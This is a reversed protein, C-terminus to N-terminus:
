PVVTVTTDTGGGGPSPDPTLLFTMLALPIVVALVVGLAVMVRHGRSLKTIDGVGPLVLAPAESAGGLFPSGCDRCTSATLANRLGCRTCPWEAEQVVPVAPLAAPQAQEPQAVPAAPLLLDLLPATLPDSGDYAPTPEPVVPAAPARLDHYCLSCWQADPRLAAGCSPCATTRPAENLDPGM